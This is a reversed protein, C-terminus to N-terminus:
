RVMSFQRAYMESTEGQSSTTEKICESISVELTWVAKAMIYSDHAYNTPVWLTSYRKVTSITM